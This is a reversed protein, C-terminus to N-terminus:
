GDLQELIERAVPLAARWDCSRRIEAAVNQAKVKGEEALRLAKPLATEEECACSLYRGFLHQSEGVLRGIVPVGMALYEIMKFSVRARNGPNDRMYILGYDLERLAAAVAAQPLQGTIRCSTELGDAAIRRRWRPEFEGGGLIQLAGRGGGKRYLSFAEYLLDLDAAGGATLTCLYGFRPERPPPAHPPRPAAALYTESLAQPVIWIKRVGRKRALEALARSHTTVGGCLRPGLWEGVAVLWRRLTKRQLAADRDDWDVLAPRGRWRALLLLPINQPLFKQLILRREAARRAQRWARIAGGLLSRGVREAREEEQGNELLLLDAGAARFLRVLNRARVTSGYRRDLPNIFLLPQM